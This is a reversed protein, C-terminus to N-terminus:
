PKRVARKKKKSHEIHAKCGLRTVLPETLLLNSADVGSSVLPRLQTTEMVVSSVPPGRARLVGRLAVLDPLSEGRAAAEALSEVTTQAKWLNQITRSEKRVRLISRLSFRIAAVGLAVASVGVAFNNYPSDSKGDKNRRPPRFELKGRAGGGTFLEAHSPKRAM